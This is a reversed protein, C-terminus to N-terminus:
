VNWDWTERRNTSFWEMETSNWEITWTQERKRQGIVSFLYNWINTSALGNIAAWFRVMWMLVRKIGNTQAQTILNSFADNLLYNHLMKVPIEKSKKTVMRCLCVFEMCVAWFPIKEPERFTNLYEFIKTGDSQHIVFPQMIETIIYKTFETWFFSPM